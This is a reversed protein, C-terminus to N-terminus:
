RPSGDDNLEYYQQYSAESLPVYLYIASMVQEVTPEEPASALTSALRPSALRPALTSHGEGQRIEPCSCDRKRSRPPHSSCPPAHKRHPTTEEQFTSTHRKASEESPQQYDHRTVRVPREFHCNRIAAERALHTMTRRSRSSSVIPKAEHRRCRPQWLPRKFHCIRIAAERALHTMTRSSSTSSSSVITKAEHLRCRLQWVKRTVPADEQIPTYLEQPPAKKLPPLEQPPAEMRARNETNEYGKEEPRSSEEALHQTVARDKPANSDVQKQVSHLNLPALDDRMTSLGDPESHRDSFRREDTYKGLKRRQPPKLCKPPKSRKSAKSSDEKVEEYTCMKKKRRKNAESADEQVEESTCMRKSGQPPKRRKTAESADEQVDESTCMKKSGQPPKRIKTAKSADEQVEESTPPASSGTSSPYKPPDTEAADQRSELSPKGPLKEMQCTTLGPSTTTPEHSSPPHSSGDNCFLM